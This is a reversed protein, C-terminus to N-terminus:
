PSIPFSLEKFPDKIGSNKYHNMNEMLKEIENMEKMKIKYPYQKYKYLKMPNWGACNMSLLNNPTKQTNM